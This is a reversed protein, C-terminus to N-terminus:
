MLRALPAPKLGHKVYHPYQVWHSGGLGYHKLVWFSNDPDPSTAVGNIGYGPNKPNPYWMSVHEQGNFTYTHRIWHVNDKVASLVTNGM